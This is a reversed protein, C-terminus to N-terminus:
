DEEDIEEWEFSEVTVPIPTIGDETVPLRPNQPEQPKEGAINRSIICGLTREVMEGKSNPLAATYLQCGCGLKKALRKCFNARTQETVTYPYINICYVKGDASIVNICTGSTYKPHKPLQAIAEPVAVGGETIRELCLLMFNPVHEKLLADIHAIGEVYKPQNPDPRYNSGLVHNKVRLYTPDDDPKPTIKEKPTSPTPKVAPSKPKAAPSKPKAPSAKHAQKKAKKASSSSTLWNYILCVVIILLFMFIADM